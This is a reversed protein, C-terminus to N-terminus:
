TPDSRKVKTVYVPFFGSKERRDMDVLFFSQRPPEFRAKIKISYPSWGMLSGNMIVHPLDITQHWHGLVDLDAAAHVGRNWADIAKNLPILVGGVGGAYRVWDGHHYRIIYGGVDVYSHYGVGVQFKIGEEGVLDEELLRGLVWDVNHEAAMTVRPKRTDRGHNGFSWVVLVEKCDMESRWLKIISKLKPRLWLLAQLPTLETSEILDEHIHGSFFDGGFWAIHAQIDANTAEKKYLKVVNQAFVQLKEESLALNSQNRGATKSYEVREEVHLDSANSGSVTPNKLGRKSPPKIKYPVVPAEKVALLLENRSQEHRLKGELLRVLRRLEESTRLQRQARLQQEALRREEETLEPDEDLFKDLAKEDKPQEAM